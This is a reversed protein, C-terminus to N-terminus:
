VVVQDYHTFNLSSVERRCGIAELWSTPALRDVRVAPIQPSIPRPSLPAETHGFSHLTLKPFKIGPSVLVCVSFMVFQPLAGSTMERATGETALMVAVLVQPDVAGPETQGIERVYVAWSADCTLAVNVNCSLAAIDDCFMPSKTGPTPPIPNVPVDCPDGEAVTIAPAVAVNLRMIPPFLAPPIAESVQEFEGFPAIHETGGLMLILGKPCANLTVTEVVDRVIALNRPLGIPYPRDQYKSQNRKGACCRLAANRQDVASVIASSMEAQEHPPAPRSPPVLLFRFPVGAAVQLNIRVAATPEPLSDKGSVRM